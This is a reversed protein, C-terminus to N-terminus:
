IAVNSRLAPAPPRPAAEDWLPQMQNIYKRGHPGTEALRYWLWELRQWTHPQDDQAVVDRYLREMEEVPVQDKTFCVNGIANSVTVWGHEWYDRDVDSPPTCWKEVVAEIRDKQAYFPHGEAWDTAPWLFVVLFVLLVALVPYLWRPPFRWLGPETVFM